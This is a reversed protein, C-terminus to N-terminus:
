ETPTSPFSINTGDIKPAYLFADPDATATLSFAASEERSRVVNVDTATTYLYDFEVFFGVVPFSMKLDGVAGINGSRTKVGGYSETYVDMTSTQEAYSGGAATWVYTNVINRKALRSAWDYSDSARVQRRYDDWNGANQLRSSLQDVDYQQYYGALRAQER